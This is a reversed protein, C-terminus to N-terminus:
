SKKTGNKIRIDGFLKMISRLERAIIGPLKNMHFVNSARAEPKFHKVPIEMIRYGKDHSKIVFEATFFGLRHVDPAIEDAVNKRFLRFGTDMDIYRVGFLIRLILNYVRSLFLRLLGDRRNNKIGLIIDNRERHPWLKWFDHPDFQNDSDALFIWDNKAHRLADRIARLYGKREDHLHLRLSLEKELDRLIGKTGDMSGDEAVIIEFDLKGKFEDYFSRLTKEIVAAENYVPFVFSVRDKPPNM